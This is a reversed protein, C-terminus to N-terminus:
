PAVKPTSAPKTKPKPKPQAIKFLYPYIVRVTGKLWSPMVFKFTLLEKKLCADLAQDFGQLRAAVVTGSKDITFTAVARGALGPRKTLAREYCRKMKYGNASIVKRLISKDLPGVVKPVGAVVSPARSVRAQLMRLQSFDVRPNTVPGRVGPGSVAGKSPAAVGRGTGYVGVGGFSMGGGGGSGSLGGLVGYNGSGTIGSFNGRRINRAVQPVEVPVKVKKATAGKTVRSRDVAVFATYRTMLKHSLATAVIEDVKKQDARKILQRSLEAIRRRAWVSAVAPRDHHKPLVVPVDFSVTRGAQMGRVTVTAKGSGSYHGALVLPQGAFLDPIARPVVDTVALGNWDISINTLLPKDIRKYMTAVVKDTAEDPRVFQATGRGLEAMEQLLYRNVATGVGFSFLRAAGIKRTVRALIEDENGIYGDTLFVVIRLRAPDHHVALAADIGSAMATGGGARLAGLWDLTHRVNAPKNAIPRSGLASASDAFRVIQFTDEPRMGALVRRILQKSKVLPAGRMSSSTDLLFILERPTVDRKAVVRPPQAVLFFSGRKGTRHTHVAINPGTGAVQYRLIFDRNPIRDGAGLAIHARGSSKSVHRVDIAHSSSQIDNVAVGADLEVVLNIEHRSRLQPPLRKPQVAEKISAANASPPVYRPPAVMPFVLEYGGREYHLPQVFRITIDVRAGPEINAVRQTFLNEREQTLMAAVHGNRKARTYIRKAEARKHITGEIVRGGIRIDMHNVAAKTPLPFLYVAEIKEKYPNHFRQTVTVDALFGDVRVHVDTRKLPLDIARKSDHVILRGENAQTARVRSSVTHAVPAHLGLSLALAVGIAVRM